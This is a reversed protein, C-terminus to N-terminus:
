LKEVIFYRTIKWSIKDFNYWLIESIKINDILVVVSSDQVLDELKLETFGFINLIYVLIFSIYIFITLYVLYIAWFM